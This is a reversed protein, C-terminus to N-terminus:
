RLTVSSSNSTGLSNSMTVALSQIADVNGFVNFTVTATFLSGFAQSATSRYWVGFPGDATLSLSTTDLKLEKNNPDVFPTFTFTMTSASRTPSYGTILVTIASTTRSSLQVSTIRPASPRVAINTAPPATVTLNIGGADTAFTSTLTITGAVTGTQFRIRNDNLGFVANRSNAPVVFNVTRGGSAFAIAPDDGFVDATPAFTLTLKGTLQVPYPNDLTIGVGIQQAADVASTAGSFSVGPLQPPADGVGSLNFTQNDIKLTGTAQGLTIPAFALGFSITAGGDVKVPLAPLNTLTFVGTAPGTVSISNIFTATNGTNSIQVQASSNTGVQAPTFIVTGNSALTTSASGVVATYTLNVGLGTGSLNFTADGIRLLATFTGPQTPAFNINFTISNGAQLTLPLFPVLDLAFLANSSAISSITADLNGTNRVRMTATTKEVLSTQPLTLTDGASVTRSNSGVIFDYALVSSVGNGGLNFALTNATSTTIAFDIRLTARAFGLQTPQFDITFTLTQGGRIVAPLLPVGSVKFAGGSSTINNVTGQNVGRNTIVFTASNTQSQTPNTQNVTTDPFTITGDPLIATQNGRPLLAYSFGFDTAPAQALLGSPFCLMLLLLVWYRKM